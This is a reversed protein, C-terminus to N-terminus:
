IQPFALVKGHIQVRVSEGVATGSHGVEQLELVTGDDLRVRVVTQPGYFRHGIVVANATDGAEAVCTAQEPRIVVTVPGDPVADTCPHTGLPSTVADGAVHGDIEITSGVFRAVELSTPRRYVDAPTGRQAIRGDLLVAVQDALSLAEAQDHTVLIATTGSKRLIATIDERVRVRLGTDLSAFPEDLLMVRPQAALARALAVRQQQGGSLQHPRADAFGQLGVIDLWRAVETARLSPSMRGLGFTINGAVDHHPFLAGEQPMLGVRRRHAPVATNRDAVTAGEIRVTGGDPEEFGALIRLLTSKGCGSPGLIATVSGAAVDLTIGDLVTTAGFSKTVDLIQVGAPEPM